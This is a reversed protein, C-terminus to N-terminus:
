IDLRGGGLALSARSAAGQRISMRTQRISVIRSGRNGGGRTSTRGQGGPTVGASPRLMMQFLSQREEFQMEQEGDVDEVTPTVLQKNSLYDKDKHKHQQAQYFKM